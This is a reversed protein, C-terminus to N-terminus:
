HNVHAGEEWDKMTTNNTRQDELKAVITRQNIFNRTVKNQLAGKFLTKYLRCLRGCKRHLFDALLNHFCCHKQFIYGRKFVKPSASVPLGVSQQEVNVFKRRGLLLMRLAIGYKQSIEDMATSTIIEHSDIFILHQYALPLSLTVTSSRLIRLGRFEFAQLHTFDKFELPVDHFSNFIRPPPLLESRQLLCISPYVFLEMAHAKTTTGNASVLQPSKLRDIAKSLFMTRVNQSGLKAHAATKNEASNQVLARGSM